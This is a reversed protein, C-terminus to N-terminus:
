EPLDIQVWGALENPDCGFYRCLLQLSRQDFPKRGTAFESLRTPNVGALSAVKHQPIPRGNEDTNSLLMAKLKTMQITAM